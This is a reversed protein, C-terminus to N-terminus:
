SRREPYGKQTEVPISEGALSSTLPFRFSAEHGASTTLATHRSVVEQIELFATSFPPRFAPTANIAPVDAVGHHFSVPPEM